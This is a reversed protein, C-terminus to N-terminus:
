RNTAATIYEIIPIDIGFNIFGNERSLENNVIPVSYGIGASLGNYFTVGLGSGFLTYSFSEESKLDVLNYLLGSGFLVVHLDSVLPEKQPRYWYYQQGYYRYNEGPSFSRTYKWNWIKWKIGIKESAFYINDLSGTQGDAPLLSNDDTFVGYNTGITVYPTVYKTIGRRGASSFTDDMQAILSEFDIYLYGYKGNGQAAGVLRGADDNYELFTNELVLEIVTAVVDSPYHNRSVDIFRFLVHKLGQFQQQTLSFDSLDSKSLGIYFRYLDRFDKFYVHQNLLETLKNIYGRQEKTMITGYKVKMSDLSESIESDSLEFLGNKLNTLDQKFSMDEIKRIEKFLGQLGSAFKLLPEVREKVEQQKNLLAIKGASDAKQYELEFVNDSEYWRKFQQDTFADNLSFLEQYVDPNELVIKLCLDILVNLDEIGESNTGILGNDYTVGAKKVLEDDAYLALGFVFGFEATKVIAQKTMATKNKGSIIINVLDYVYKFSTFNNLKKQYGAKDRTFEKIITNKLVRDRLDKQKEQIISSLLETDITGKSVSPSSGTINLEPSEQASVSQLLAGFIFLVICVRYM